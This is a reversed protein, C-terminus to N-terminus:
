PQPEANETEEEKQPIIAKGYRKWYFDLMFWFAPLTILWNVRSQYREFIGSAAVSIFANAYILVLLVLAILKQRQSYKKDFFLLILTFLSILMLTNQVLNSIRFYSMTYYGRAQKTCWYRYSYSPYWSTIGSFNLDMKRPVTEPSFDYDLLQIMSEELCRIVYRKIYQPTTFIDGILRGMEEETEPAWGGIEYLPSGKAWLFGAGPPFKEKYPCLAYNDDECYDKLYSKAIGLDILRSFLFISGGRGATFGGGLAFHASSLILNCSIILAWMSAFKRFSLGLDQYISRVAPLVAGAMLFLIGLVMIWLHANHMGVSVIFLIRLIWLDRKSIPDGFFLILFILMAIPTFVDPMLMSAHMSVTTFFAIVMIYGLFMWPEVSKKLLYKFSYFLTGGLLLGQAIIVLWLTEFLSVHRLFWGYYVPRSAQTENKFGSVLYSMTDPFHLPFGNSFGFSCFLLAAIILVLVKQWRMLGNITNFKEM